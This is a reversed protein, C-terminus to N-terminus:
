AKLRPNERPDIRLSDRRRSAILRPQRSGPSRSADPGRPSPTYASPAPRRLEKAAAALTTSAAAALNGATCRGRGRRCSSVLKAWRRSDSRSGSARGGYRRAAAQRSASATHGAARSRLPRTSVIHRKHDRLEHRDSGEGARHPGDMWRLSPSHAGGGHAHHFAARETFTGECFAGGAPSPSRLSRPTQM